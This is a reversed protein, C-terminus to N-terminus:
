SPMRCHPPSCMRVTTDTSDSKAEVTARDVIMFPKMRYGDSTISTTLTSRKTNDNVPIHVSPVPYDIQVVIKVEQNDIHWSYCISDINFVFWWYVGTLIEGVM